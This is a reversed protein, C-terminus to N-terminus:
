NRIWHYLISCGVSVQVDWQYVLPRPCPVLLLGLWRLYNGTTSFISRIKKSNLPRDFQHNRAFSHKTMCSKFGRCRRPRDCMRSNHIKRCGHILNHQKAHKKHMKVQFPWLFSIYTFFSSAYNFGSWLTSLVCLLLWLQINLVTM